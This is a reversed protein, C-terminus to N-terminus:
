EDFTFSAAVQVDNFYHHNGNAEQSLDPFADNAIEVVPTSEDKKGLEDFWQPVNTIKYKALNSSNKRKLFGNLNQVKQEHDGEQEKENVNRQGVDNVSDTGKASMSQQESHVYISEEIVNMEDVTMGKRKSIHLTKCVTHTQQINRSDDDVFLVQQYKLKKQQMLSQVVEGKARNHTILEKSDRGLIATSKFYVDMEVRHLASEIVESWGFSVIYLEIHHSRLYQFHRHLSQIRQEGGFVEILKHDPFKSLAANKGGRLKRYLHLSTITQDFDYIVLQVTGCPKLPAADPSQSPCGEIQEEKEEEVPLKPLGQEQAM